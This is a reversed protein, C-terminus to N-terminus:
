NRKKRKLVLALILLLAAALLLGVYLLIPTDDGTKVSKTTAPVTEDSETGAEEFEEETESETEREQNTIVVSGKLTEESLTVATNDVTVDYQFSAAGAVPKGDKDVETVYVTTSGGEPVAVKVIDSVSSTGGLALKVINQSVDKSLTTFSADAFIGAYFTKKSTKAEGDAGLMQKTVTLEGERYYETPLEAFLNRFYVTQTGDGKAITVVNDNYFDVSFMEGTALAGGVNNLVVGDASTEAVYYTKGVELKEFTTSSTNM